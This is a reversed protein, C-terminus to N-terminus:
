EGPRATEYHPSTTTPLEPRQSGGTMLETCETCSDLQDSIMEVKGTQPDKRRTSGSFTSWGDAKESFVTGCRDCMRVSSM